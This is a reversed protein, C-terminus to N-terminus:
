MDYVAKKYADVLIENALDQDPKEPLKSKKQAEMVEVLGQEIMNSVEDYSYKGLKIDTLMTAEPRPFTINGTLLLEKAEGAVRVAHHLAKFDVGGALHAKFSRDGYQDHMTQLMDITLKVSNTIPAKKNCIELHLLETNDQQTIPLLQILPADYLSIESEKDKIFSNILPLHDALRDHKPFQKLFELAEKVARFRSGKIGYKAAQQKTYGVFSSVNKSILMEKYHSIKALPESLYTGYTANKIEPSFLLDLAVTQSKLLLRMYQDLSFIETDIDDKTNREFQKKPRTKQVTPIQTGLLIDEGLPIYIGKFDLDSSPTQCGYLHSGFAVKFHNKSNLITKM